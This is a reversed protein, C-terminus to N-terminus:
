YRLETIVDIMGLFGSYVYPDVNTSSNAFIVSASGTYYISSTTPSVIISSNSMQLIGTSTSNTTTGNSMPDAYYPTANIIGYGATGSNIITSNSIMANIYGGNGIYNGSNRLRIYSNSIRIKGTDFNGTLGGNGNIYNFGNGILSSSSSDIDSIISSNYINIEGNNCKTIPCGFNGKINGTYNIVGNYYTKFTERLTVLSGGYTIDGNHNLVSGTASISAIRRGQSYLSQSTEGSSTITYINGEYNLVRSTTNYGVIMFLTKANGNQSYEICDGKLNFLFPISSSDCNHMVTGINQPPGTFYIRKIDVNIIGQGNVYATSTAGAPRVNFVVNSELAFLSDGEINFLTYSLDGRFSFGSSIQSFIYRINQNYEMSSVASGSIFVSCGAGSQGVNSTYIHIYSDAYITVTAKNTPTTGRSISIAQNSNTTISKVQIYTTYPAACQM